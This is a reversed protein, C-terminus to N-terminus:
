QKIGIFASMRGSKDKDRRYSHLTKEIITCLPSIEINSESLGASLLQLKIENKNDFLYKTDSIRKISNPFYKAVDEGVEYIDGGACPSVFALLERSNAGFESILLKVGKACINQMTGRWGSHLAMIAENKADYILVGACDAIKVNLVIGKENTYLGDAELTQYNKDVRRIIDSHTQFQYKMSEHPIELDNALALQHRLLEADNLIDGNSLSLGYPPVLEENKKTVGSIIKNKDFISPFIYEFNM